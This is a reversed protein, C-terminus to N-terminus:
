DIDYEIGRVVCPAFPMRAVTPPPTTPRSPAHGHRTSCVAGLRGHADCVDACYTAEARKREDLTAVYLRHRRRRKRPSSRKAADDRIALSAIDRSM